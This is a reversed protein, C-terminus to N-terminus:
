ELLLVDGEDISPLKIRPLNDQEVVLEKKLATSYARNIPQKTSVQLLLEKFPVNERPRAGRTNAAAGKTTRYAWNMLVVARKGSTPNRVLVSEVLPQNCEVTPFFSGGAPLTIMERQVSNFDASMDFEQGRIKSSYELGPFFGAVYVSGKGALAHTLAASGDEFMALVETDPLAKLPERGIVPTFKYNARPFSLEAGAPAAALKRAKEDFAELNTAGYAQVRTWMEVPAREKLGLLPALVSLPQNAEDRAAGGACTYLTGGAKVWAAVKEAAARTLHTGNIYIVRYNSLDDKALIEEDIADINHHAHQWATFMWKANEWSAVEAPSNGTLGRWVEASRPNVIAIKPPNEFVAGALVSESAGLLAAARAAGEMGAENEAFSDGKSYDPGYTYWYILKAGRGAAALARQVPAGRHPKVYVGFQLHERGSVVRGVDCLYSDWGWVRADRNSTEYVFANDANRYFDFFDLSHGGMLFTNGRLAFSYVAPVGDKVEAHKKNFATVADRMPTFLKASAYNGFMHSYYAALSKGSTDLVAPANKNWIDVPKVGAWDAAGFDEPKLNRSKLYARFGEACRPCVAYHQKGELARDAVSGIEDETRWWVRDTKYKAAEALASDIIAQTRAAVGPAFPCGAEPDANPKKPDARPVPYGGLQLYISNRFDKAFSERAGAMDALFRPASAFGNVGLVRLSRCETEIIAKNTHRTGYYTGEGYGGLDTIVDFLRPRPEKAAPLAELHEARRKAYNLLGDFEALFQTDDPTKGGALRYTPICIGITGGDPGAEKFTKLVKGRYSLEFELETNTSAGETKHYGFHEGNRVLKGGRGIMFTIFLKKPFAGTAFSAVPMTPSWANLELKEALTGKTVTGGLGEGGQRWNLPSAEAPTLATIRARIQLEPPIKGAAEPKAVDVQAANDEGGVCAAAAACVFFPIIIKRM